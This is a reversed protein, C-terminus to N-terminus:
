AKAAKDFLGNDMCFKRLENLEGKLSAIMNSAKQHKDEIENMEEYMQMYDTFIWDMLIVCDKEGANYIDKLEAQTAFGLNIATGRDWVNWDDLIDKLSGKLDFAGHRKNKTFDFMTYPTIDGKFPIINTGAKKSSPFTAERKRREEEMREKAPGRIVSTFYDSNSSLIDSGDAAKMTKWDGLILPDQDNAILIGRNSTTPWFKRVLIQFLPAQIDGKGNGFDSASLYPTLVRQVFNQTDSPGSDDDVSIGKNDFKKSKFEYLTGNHMFVVQKPTKGKREQYFVDFPHCNELNTLGATTHRVHLIRSLDRDKLLLDWIEDPDIEGSEPVKRKIDLRGDVITVLGYSHWNNRCMNDFEHRELPMQGPKLVLINCM